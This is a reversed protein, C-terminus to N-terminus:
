KIQFVCLLPCRTSNNVNSYFILYTLHEFIKVKLENQLSVFLRKILCLLITANIKAVVLLM